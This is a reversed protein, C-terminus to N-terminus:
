LNPLIRTCPPALLFYKVALLFTSRNEIEGIMNSMADSVNSSMSGLSTERKAERKMLSQYFEVIEPARHVKDGGGLNRQYLVQLHHHRHGVLKGRLHHYLLLHVQHVHRKYEVQLIPLGQLLPQDLPLHDPFEQQERRL